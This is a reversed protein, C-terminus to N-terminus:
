GEMLAAVAFSVSAALAAATRVHNVATWPRSYARWTAEDDDPAKALRNNLPVNVALTVGICGLLYLGTGALVWWFAPPSVPAAGLSLSVAAILPVVFMTLLPPREARLNISQMARVADPAPLRNLASMVFSSFAYLVGGICATGVIAVVLAPTFM